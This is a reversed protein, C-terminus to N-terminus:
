NMKVCSNIFNGGKPFDTNDCPALCVSFKEDDNFLQSSELIDKYGSTNSHYFDIKGSADLENLRPSLIVFRGERVEDLCQRFLVMANYLELLSNTSAQHTMNLNTPMTMSVYVPAQNDGGLYYSPQFLIPRYHKLGYEQLYVQQILEIPAFENSVAPVFGPIMGTGVMFLHKVFKITEASVSNSKGHSITPFLLDWVQSNRMFASSDWSQYLVYSTFAQWAPDSKKELWQKSFLLIKTSWKTTTSRSHYIERFINWHETVDKPKDAVIGLTKRLRNHANSEAIKPLMFISRVGATMGWLRSEACFSKHSDLWRWWGFLEGNQLLVYPILRGGFHYFIEIPKGLVIGPPNVNEEYDLERKVAEPLLADELSVGKGDATPLRFQGERAIEEGYHYECEYLKFTEPPSLADIITFLDRNAKKVNLRAEQWSLERLRPTSTNASKMSM